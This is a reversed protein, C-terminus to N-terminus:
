PPPLCAPLRGHRQWLLALGIGLLLLINLYVPMLIRNDLPTTADILNISLALLSAYAWASLLLMFEQQSLSQNTKPYSRALWVLSIVVLGGLIVLFAIIENGVVLRQPILGWSLVAKVLSAAQKETVPHWFIVRNALTGSVLRNRLFWAAAPLM